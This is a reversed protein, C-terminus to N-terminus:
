ESDTSQIIETFSIRIKRQFYNQVVILIFDQFSQNM